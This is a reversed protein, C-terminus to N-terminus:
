RWDENYKSYDIVDITCDDFDAEIINEEFNAYWFFRIVFYLCILIIMGILGGILLLLEIAEM